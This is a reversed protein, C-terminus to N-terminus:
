ISKLERSQEEHNISYLFYPLVVWFIVFFICVIPIWNAGVKNIAGIRFNRYLFYISGLAGLVLLINRLAITDKVAWIGLLVSSISILTLGLRDTNLSTLSLHSHDQSSQM